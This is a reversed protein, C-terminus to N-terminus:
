LYYSDTLPDKESDQNYLKIIESMSDDKEEDRQIIEDNIKEKM